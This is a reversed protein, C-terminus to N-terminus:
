KGDSELELEALRADIYVLKNHAENILDPYPGNCGDAWQKAATRELQLATIEWRRAAALANVLQGKMERAQAQAADCSKTLSKITGRELGIQARLDECTKTLAKIIRPNSDSM